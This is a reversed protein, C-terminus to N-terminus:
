IGLDAQYVQECRNAVFVLAHDRVQFLLIELNGFVPVIFLDSKERAFHHQTVRPSKSSVEPLSCFCARRSEPRPCGTGAGTIRLPSSAM